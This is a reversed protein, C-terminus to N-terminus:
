GIIRSNLVPNRAILHVTIVRKVNIRFLYLVANDKDRPDFVRNKPVSFFSMFWQRVRSLLLSDSTSKTSHDQAASCEGIILLFWLLHRLILRMVNNLVFRLRRWAHHFEDDSLCGNWQYQMGEIGWGDDCSSWGAGCLISIMSTCVPLRLYIPMALPDGAIGAITIGEGGLNFLSRFLVAMALGSFHSSNGNWHYEIYRLSSFAQSFISLNPRATVSLWFLSLAGFVAAAMAVATRIIQFNKKGYWVRREIRSRGRSNGEIGLMYLELAEENLGTQLTLIAVM